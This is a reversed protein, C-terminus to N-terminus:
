LLLLSSFNSDSTERYVFKQLIFVRSIRIEYDRRHFINAKEFTVEKKSFKTLM